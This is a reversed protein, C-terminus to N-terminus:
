KKFIKNWILLIIYWLFPFVLFLKFPNHLIEVFIENGRNFTSERVRKKTDSFIGIVDKYYLFISSSFRNRRNYAWMDKEKIGESLLVLSPSSKYIAQIINDEMQRPYYGVYRGVVQLDPFTARVNSEATALSKKHGGLLYLSKYHSDLVSLVNIVTSFPNQRVPVPMKLFRAGSLISKSVPIVLDANQVCEAYSSKGRAKLLNWVSLFVIQKTGPKVLLELIAAEINDPRCVDVPVGLLKIRQMAM